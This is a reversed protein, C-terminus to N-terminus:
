AITKKVCSDSLWSERQRTHHLPNRTETSIWSLFNGLSAHQSEVQIHLWTDDRLGLPWALPVVPNFIETASPVVPDTNYHFLELLQNCSHPTVGWNRIATALPSESTLPQISLTPLCPYQWALCPMQFGMLLIHQCLNRPRPCHLDGAQHHHICHYSM